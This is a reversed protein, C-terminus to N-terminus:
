FLDEDESEEEINSKLALRDVRGRYESHLMRSFPAEGMDSIERAMESMGEIVADRFKQNSEAASRYQSELADFRSELSSSQSASPQASSRYKAEARQLVNEFSEDTFEWVFRPDVTNSSLTYTKNSRYDIASVDYGSETKQVDIITLLPRSSRYSDPFLEDGELGLLIKDGRYAQESFAPMIKSIKSVRTTDFSRM